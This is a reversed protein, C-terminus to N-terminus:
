AELLHMLKDLNVKSGLAILTDGYLIPADPQPNFLMTGDLRKIAVIILDLKQRLGSDKLPKGIIDSNGGVPIEELSLDIGEGLAVDM